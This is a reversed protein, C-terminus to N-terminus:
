NKKREFYSHKVKMKFYFFFQQLIEFWQDNYNDLMEKNLNYGAHFFELNKNSM